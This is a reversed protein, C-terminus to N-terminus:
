PFDHPVCSWAQIKCHSLGKSACASMANSQAQERTTAQGTAFDGNDGAAVAACSESFNMVIECDDGYRRCNSLAVREASAANLESNAWGAAGSNAGYAIAGFSRSPQRCESLYCENVKRACEGSAQMQADCYTTSKCDSACDARATPIHVTCGLIVGLAAFSLAKLKM